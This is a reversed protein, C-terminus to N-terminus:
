ASGPRGLAVHAFSRFALGSRASRTVVPSFARCVYIPHATILPSHPSTHRRSVIAPDILSPLPASGNPDILDTGSAEQM